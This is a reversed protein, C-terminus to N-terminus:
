DHTKGLKKYVDAPKEGVALVADIISQRAAEFYGVWYEDLEAADYINVRDEDAPMVPKPPENM